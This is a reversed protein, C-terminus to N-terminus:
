KLAGADGRLLNVGGSDLGAEIELVNIAKRAKAM